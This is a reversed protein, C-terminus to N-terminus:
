PKGHIQLVSITSSLEAIWEKIQHDGETMGAIELWSDRISSSFEASSLFDQVPWMFSKNTCTLLARPVSSFGSLTRIHNVPGLFFGAEILPAYYNFAGSNHRQNDEAAKRLSHSIEKSQGFLNGLVRLEMEILNRFEHRTQSIQSARLQTLSSLGVIEMALNLIPKLLTDPLFSMAIEIRKKSGRIVWGRKIMGSILASQVAWRLNQHADERAKHKLARQARGLLRRAESAHLVVLKSIVDLHNRKSIILPLREQWLSDKWFLSHYGNLEDGLRTEHFWKALKETEDMLEWALQLQEERITHINEILDPHHFTWAPLTSTLQKSVVVHLDLDSSQNVPGRATSGSLLVGLVGASNSLDLACQTARARLISQRRPDHGEAEAMSGIITM